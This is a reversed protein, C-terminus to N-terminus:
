GQVPQASELLRDLTTTLTNASGARRVVGSRRHKRQRMKAEDRAHEQKEKEHESEDEVRRQERRHPARHRVLLIYLLTHVIVAIRHRAGHEAAPLKRGGTLRWAIRALIVAALTFGILVHVSWIDLRLPGKPLLKTLRGTVWLTTVLGATAWHLARTRRDYPQIMGEDTM